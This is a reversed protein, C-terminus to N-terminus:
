MLDHRTNLIKDAPKSPVIYLLPEDNTNVEYVKVYNIRVFLTQHFYRSELRLSLTLKLRIM